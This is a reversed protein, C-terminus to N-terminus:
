AGAFLAAAAFAAWHGAFCRGPDLPNAVPTYSVSYAAKKALM